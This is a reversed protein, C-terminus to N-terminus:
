SMKTKSQYCYKLYIKKEKKTYLQLNLPRVHFCLILDKYKKSEECFFGKGKIRRQAKHQLPKNSEIHIFNSDIHQIMKHFGFLSQYLEVNVNMILDLNSNFNFIPHKEISLCVIVDSHVNNLQHGKEHFTINKNSNSEKPIYSSNLKVNITQQEFDFTLGHCDNCKTKKSLVLGKGNCQNCSINVVQTLSGFRIKHRLIKKGNCSYCKKQELYIFGTEDCTSCRQKRSFKIVLTDNNYLQEM